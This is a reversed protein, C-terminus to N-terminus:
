ASGFYFKSIYCLGNCSAVIQYILLVRELRLHKMLDIARCRDKTNTMAAPVLKRLLRRYWKDIVDEM